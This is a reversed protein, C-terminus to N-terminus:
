LIYFDLFKKDDPTLWLHFRRCENEENYHNLKISFSKMSKVAVTKLKQFCKQM